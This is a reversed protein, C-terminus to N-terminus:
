GTPRRGTDHARSAPRSGSAGAPFRGPADFAVPLAHLGYVMGETKWRLGSEPVALRLGPLRRLVTELAVQLEVRALHAGVCFHAGHGFGLHAPGTRDLRLEDADPFVAADRNAAAVAILVPEGARVVTGGLEVDETAYRPLLFSNLQTYRTLEEVASPILDPRERLRRLEEPHTLLRHFFNAIQHSLTLFGAVLLDGALSLMEEETILGDEDRAQLLSSCLDDRPEKRRLEFLASVYSSFEASQERLEDDTTADSLKADAWNWFRRHDEEPVGLLECLLTTPFPVAFQEVLDATTGSAVIRDLLDEALGRARDRLLEVRRASFQKAVVGRLRTHEPPDLAFLGGTIRAWPRMRPQDRGVAEAFSFRPDSMVAKVDAYRTALWAEEGYPMRVRALPQERLEAYVPHLALGPGPAFPYALPESPTHM